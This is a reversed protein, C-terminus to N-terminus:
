LSAHSATDCIVHNNCTLDDGGAEEEDDDGDGESCQNATAVTKM